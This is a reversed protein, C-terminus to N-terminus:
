PLFLRGAGRMNEVDFLVEFLRELVAEAYARDRLTRDRDALTLVPLCDPTNRQRITMELSEPGEASRNGTILLVDGDQCAQWVRADTADEPLGLDDFTCVACELECWLSAWPPTQCLDMLRGVHGRVDNDSMIRLM